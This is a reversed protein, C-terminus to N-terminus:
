RETRQWANHDQMQPLVGNDGPLENRKVTGEM